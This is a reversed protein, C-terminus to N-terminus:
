NGKWSSPASTVPRQPARLSDFRSEDGVIRGALRVIGAARVRRALAQVTAGAGYAARDFAAAGFTPDGGGRLYLTGHWTGSRDLRGTGLVSTKLVASPGLRLLATSTTYLKQVSAPTRGRRADFAFLTRRTTMDVVYAGHAGGVAELDEALARRLAGAGLASGRGLSTAPAGLAAIGALVIVAARRM